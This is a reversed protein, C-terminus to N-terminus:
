KLKYVGADPSSLYSKREVLLDNLVNNIDMLVMKDRKFYIHNSLRFFKVGSSNTVNIRELNSISSLSNLLTLGDLGLRNGKHSKGSVKLIRDKEHVYVILKDTLSPLNILSKEFVDLNLDAAAFLVSKLNIESKSYDKVLGEFIRHGMSHCLVHTEIEANELIPALIPQYLQSTEIANQWSNLFYINETHWIVSIVKDFGEINKLKKITNKHYVNVGGYLSHFYLLVKDGKEIDLYNDIKEHNDDGLNLKLRDVKISWDGAYSGLQIKDNKIDIYTYETNSYGYFPLLSSVIIILVKM